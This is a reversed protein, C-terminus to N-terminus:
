FRTRNSQLTNKAVSQGKVTASKVSESKGIVPTTNEEPAAAAVVAIKSKKKSASKARKSTSTESSSALKSSKDRNFLKGFTRAFASQQQPNTKAFPTIAVSQPQAVKGLEAAKELTCKNRIEKCITCKKDNCKSAHTLLGQLNQVSDELESKKLLHENISETNSKIVLRQKTLEEEHEDIKRKLDVIMLEKQEISCELSRATGIQAGLEKTKQGLEAKLEAINQERESLNRGLRDLGVKLEERERVLVDHTRSLELAKEKLTKNIEATEGTQFQLEIKKQSLEALQKQIEQLTHALEQARTGLEQNQSILNPLKKTLWEEEKQPEQQQPTSNDTTRCEQLVEVKPEVKPAAHHEVKPAAHHEEVIQETTSDVTQVKPSHVPATPVERLFNESNIDKASTLEIELAQVRERQRREEEQLQKCKEELQMTTEEARRLMGSLRKYKLYQAKYRENGAVPVPLDDDEAGSSAPSSDFDSLLEKNVGEGYIVDNTVTENYNSENETLISTVNVNAPEVEM